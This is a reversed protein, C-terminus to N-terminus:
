TRQVWYDPARRHHAVALVQLESDLERYIVAFPFGRLSVHRLNPPRVIKFRRPASGARAIARLMALHYRRGLGARCEEYYAIQEEHELAADPHLRYNV